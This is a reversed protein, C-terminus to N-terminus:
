TWSHYPHHKASALKRKVVKGRKDKLTREETAAKKVKCPRSGIYHGNMERLAQAGEQISGLSVFGFGKGQGDKSRMVKAKTFSPYKSFAHSLVADTVEKGLNGVFIRFDNDPWESLQTDVWVKGAAKRVVGMKQQSSSSSGVHGSVSRRMEQNSNEAENEVLYENQTLSVSPIPANSIVAGKRVVSAKSDPLTKGLTSQPKGPSEIRTGSVPNDQTVQM